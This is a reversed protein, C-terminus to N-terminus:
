IILANNKHTWAIYIKRNINHYMGATKYFADKQM